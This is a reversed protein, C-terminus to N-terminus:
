LCNYQHMKKYKCKIKRRENNFTHYKCLSVNIVKCFRQIRKHIVKRGVSYGAPSVASYLKVIKKKRSRHSSETWGCPGKNNIFYCSLIDTKAGSVRRLQIYGSHVQRDRLSTLRSVQLPFLAAVSISTTRAEANVVTFLLAKQTSHIQGHWGSDICRGM